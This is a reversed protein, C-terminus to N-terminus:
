VRKGEIMMFLPIEKRAADEAVKRPGKQSEKHSIWEELRTAVFGAKTLYKFYLQLPRHFSYTKESKKGQKEKGPNMVIEVKKESMYEYEKRFQGKEDFGWDSGQPIRFTPHNLVMVFRGGKKLVRGIEEVAKAADKINQLALIIIAKDFSENAYPLPADAAGVKYSINKEKRAQALKILEPSIDFGEVKAGKKAMESSFYGQGCAVDLVKEGEKIDLIRLLNPLIVKSQYSDSDNVLEDYWSSVKGWSTSKKDM